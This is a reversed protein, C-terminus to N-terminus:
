FNESQLKFYREFFFEIREMERKGIQYPKTKEKAVKKIVSLASPPIFICYGRGIEEEKCGGLNYVNVWGARNLNEVSFGTLNAMSILFRVLNFNFFNEVRWANVLLRFLEPESFRAFKLVFRSVKSAFVFRRYNKSVQLSLNETSILDEVVPSGNKESLHLKLLNFPEFAGLRYRKLSFYEPVFLSINGTRECYCRAVLDDAGVPFRKLVACRDVISM